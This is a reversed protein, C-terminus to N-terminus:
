GPTSVALANQATDSYRRLKIASKGV